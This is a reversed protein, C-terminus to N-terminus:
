VLAASWRWMRGASCPDFYVRDYRVGPDRAGCVACCHGPYRMARDYRDALQVKEADTVHMHQQIMGEALAVLQAGRDVATQSHCQAEYNQAILNIISTKQIM